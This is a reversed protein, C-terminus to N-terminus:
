RHEAVVVRLRVLSLQAEADAPAVLLVEVAASGPALPDSVVMARGDWPVLRGDADRLRWGSLPETGNREVVAVVPVNSRVRGTALWREGSDGGEIGPERAFPSWRAQTVAGLEGSLTHQVTSLVRDGPAQAGAGRPASAVILLACAVPVHGSLRCSPPFCWM